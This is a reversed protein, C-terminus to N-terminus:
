GWVNIHNILSKLEAADKEEVLLTAVFLLIRVVIKQKKDM